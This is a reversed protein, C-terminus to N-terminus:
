VGLVEAVAGGGVVVELVGGAGTTTAGEEDADIVEALGVLEAAADVIDGVHGGEEMAAEPVAAAVHNDEGVVLLIGHTDRGLRIDEPGHLPQHPIRLRIIRQKHM